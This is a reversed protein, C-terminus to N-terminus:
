NSTEFLNITVDINIRNLYEWLAYIFYPWMFPIFICVWFLNDNVFNPKVKLDLNGLENVLIAKYYNVIFDCDMKKANVKKFKRKVKVSHEGIGSEAYSVFDVTDLIGRLMELDKNGNFDIYKQAIEERKRKSIRYLRQALTNEVPTEGVDQKWNITLCM